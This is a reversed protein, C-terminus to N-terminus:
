RLRGFLYTGTAEVVPGLITAKMRQVKVQLLGDQAPELLVFFEETASREARMRLILVRGDQSMGEGVKWRTKWTVEGDRDVIEFDLTTGEHTVRVEATEENRLAALRSDFELRLLAHLSVVGSFLSSNGVVTTGEDSYVGSVDPRSEAAASSVTLVAAALLVHWGRLAAKLASQRPLDVVRSKMAVLM